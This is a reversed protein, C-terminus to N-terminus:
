VETEVHGINALQRGIVIDSKSKFQKQYVNVVRRESIKKEQKIKFLLHSDSLRPVRIVQQRTNMRDELIDEGYPISNRRLDIGSPKFEDIGDNMSKYVEFNNAILQSEKKLYPKFASNASVNFGGKNENTNLKVIKALSNSVYVRSDHVNVKNNDYSFDYENLSKDNYRVGNQKFPLSLNRKFNVQSAIKPSYDCMKSPLLSKQNIILNKKLNLFNKSHKSGTCVQQGSSIIHAVKNIEQKKGQKERAISELNLQVREELMDLQKDFYEDIQKKNEPHLKLNQCRDAEVKYLQAEYFKELNGLANLQVKIVNKFMQKINNSLNRTQGRMFPRPEDDCAEFSSIYHGAPSNPTNITTSALDPIQDFNLAKKPTIM